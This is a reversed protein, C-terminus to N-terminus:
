QSLSRMGYIGSGESADPHWVWDKSQVHDLIVAM